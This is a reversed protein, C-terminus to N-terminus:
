KTGQEIRNTFHEVLRDVRSWLAESARTAEESEIRLRLLATHIEHLRKTLEEPSM